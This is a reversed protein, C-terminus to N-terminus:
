LRRNDVLASADEWDQLQFVGKAMLSEGLTQNSNALLVDLAYYSIYVLEARLFSATQLMQAEGLTLLGADQARLLADSLNTNVASSYGMARLLFETYQYANVPASPRFQTSSYGNTYGREYAYGIYREAQSGLQVDTFPINGNWSLAQEEEGLVRIFMILAQLRTPAVELDFGQGYGTFSGRFLNLNKLASAIANYNIANSYQFSCSGQYDVVATKSTITFSATTDEVILYRHNTNMANGSSVVDGTSIDVVAGSPYTIKGSGALLLVSVGTSTQLMDDQKLRTEAWTPVRNFSDTPTYDNENFNQWLGAADLRQDVQTNITNTFIDNLYSLTVLPDAADGAAFVWMAGIIVICLPFLFCYKKRM